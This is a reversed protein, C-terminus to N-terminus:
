PIRDQTWWRRVIELRFSYNGEEDRSLYHDKLLLKLLDRIQEDDTPEVTSKVQNMLQRQGMPTGSIALADLIALAVTEDNDDPYYKRLRNRYHALDWDNDAELLERNLRTEFAQPTAPESKSMRSILRHIYFPVDGTLTAVSEAVSDPEDVRLAAGELLAKALQTAAPRDLPGPSVREFTNLPSNNYGVKRLQTLVHHIGVSGTLVLRISPYDQSLSRLTDLVEMAREAGEEVRINDLLFPVEDWLFLVRDNGSQHQQEHLDAFTRSLTEKWPAESGDPLKLIGGIEAGAMAGLWRTMQRMARKKGTLLTHTDRYVRSAFEAATRLGGLDRKSVLWGRPPDAAMKNLIMTKGIRRLDNMYINRGELIDWIEAILADRGVIENPDLQGGPNPKM